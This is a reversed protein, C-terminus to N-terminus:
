SGGAGLDLRQLGYTRGVEDLVGVALYRSKENVEVDIDYTFWGAQAAELKSEEVEFPQTKETVDSLEDLDAAAAVWVSFSGAHKGTGQPLLTLDKIPIRVQVPVAVRKGSAKPAGATAEIDIQSDQSARFLTSRLRDRMRTDDSKEVHQRRARVTLGPRKTKVVIDRAQDQGSATVRYALSYYDTIDSSIRPLLDIVQSLGAAMLGGTQQAIEKLSVTENLLTLYEAREMSTPSAADDPEVIHTTDPLAGGVGPPNVPYITVGAANANDIISKMMEATGYRLRLNAAMRTAGGIYAFEAGAVEGLRRTALFLIKKGELGSMSNIASNIAAVRVKMENYAMLMYLQEPGSLNSEIAEGKPPTVVQPPDPARGLTALKGGGTDAMEKVKREFARLAASEERQQRALDNQAEKTKKAVHDIAATIAPVDDTFEDHEMESRNWLVVSVADGPQVARTVTQKLSDFLPDALNPPLWMHEFFILINRKERQVAQQEQVTGEVAVTDSRGSSYEAFNSIPQLKGNEYIEFDNRTLGHVRNGDRDTVFVDVNVISVDVTEGLRPVDQATVVLSFLCLLAVLKRTMM